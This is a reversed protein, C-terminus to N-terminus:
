GNNYAEGELGCYQIQICEKIIEKIEEEPIDARIIEIKGKEMKFERGKGAFTINM